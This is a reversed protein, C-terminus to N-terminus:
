YMGFKISKRRRLEPVVAVQLFRVLDPATDNMTCVTFRKQDEHCDLIVLQTYDLCLAGNPKGETDGDDNTGEFLKLLRNPTGVAIGYSNDELDQEQEAVNMHKAFLKAVRVNMGAMEKLLSVARRASICLILVMPSQKHKWKKLKKMSPITGSKLFSALSRPGKEQMKIPDPLVFNSEDFKDDDNITDGEGMMKLHHTYCTWLFASQMVRDENAIGRSSELLLNQPTVRKKKKSAKGIGDHDNDDSDGGDGDDLRPRKLGGDNEVILSSIATPEDGKTIWTQDLYEDDSGLDDGM